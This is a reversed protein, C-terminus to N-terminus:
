NFKVSNNKSGNYRINSWSLSTYNSDQVYAKDATGSIILDFNVPLLPNQSYDMDMIFVSSQPTEANNLIINYDNYDINPIYPDFITLSQSGDFEVANYLSMSVHFSSVTVSTGDTVAGFGILDGETIKMSSTLYITTDFDGGAFPFWSKVIVNGDGNIEGNPNAIYVGFFSAASASGSIRVQIYKNPTQGSTYIGSSTDMFNLVNGSISGYSTIRNSYFEGPNGLPLFSTTFSSASTVLFSYDNIDGVSSTNFNNTSGPSYPGISFLFYGPFQQIGVIPYIVDSRDPYILKITRLQSLYQSQNIGNADLTAVKIYKVGNTQNLSFYSPM